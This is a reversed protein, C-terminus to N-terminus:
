EAPYDWNVPIVLQRKFINFTKINPNMKHYGLLQLDVMVKGFDSDETIEYNKLQTLGDKSLMKPFKSNYEILLEKLDESFRHLDEKWYEETYYADPHRLTGRIRVCIDLMKNFYDHVTEMNM